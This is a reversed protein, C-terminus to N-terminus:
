KKDGRTIVSLILSVIIIMPWFFMVTIRAGLLEEYDLDMLHDNKWLWSVGYDFLLGLLLYLILWQALEM